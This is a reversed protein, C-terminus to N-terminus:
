HAQSTAPPPSAPEHHAAVLTRAFFFGAIAIALVVAAGVSKPVTKHGSPLGVEQTYDRSVM